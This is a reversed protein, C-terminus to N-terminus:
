QRYIKRRLPVKTEILYERVVRLARWYDAVVQKCESKSFFFVIYKKYTKNVVSRHAYLFNRTVSKRYPEHCQVRTDTLADASLITCLSVTDLIHVALCACAVCLTFPLM